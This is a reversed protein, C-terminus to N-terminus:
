TSESQCSPALIGAVLNFLILNNHWLPADTSSLAKNEDMKVQHIGM